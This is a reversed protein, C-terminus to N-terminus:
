KDMSLNFNFWTLLLPWQNDCYIWQHGLLVTRLFIGCSLGVPHAFMPMAQEWHISNIKMVPVTAANVFAILSTQPGPNLYIKVRQKRTTTFKSEITYVQYILQPATALLLIYILLYAFGNQYNYYRLKFHLCIQCQTLIGPYGSVLLM